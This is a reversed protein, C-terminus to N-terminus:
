PYVEHLGWKCLLPKVSPTIRGSARSSDGIQAITIVREYEWTWLVGPLQVQARGVCCYTGLALTDCPSTKITRIRLGLWTNSTHGLTSDAMTCITRAKNLLFFFFFVCFRLMREFGSSSHCTISFFHLHCMFTTLRFRTRGVKHSLILSYASHVGLTLLLFFWLHGWISSGRWVSLMVVDSQLHM